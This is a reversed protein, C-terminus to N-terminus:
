RDRLRVVFKLGSWVEDVACVKVDVLGANLGFDRVVNEDLDTPLGSARKPWCVWLAGASTLHRSLRVFRRELRAVNPCFCLVVDYPQGGPRTHVTVGPPLAPVGFGPPAGDLLLRSEPKIGLKRALPTGSYGTTSTM